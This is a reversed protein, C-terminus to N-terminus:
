KETKILEVKGSDYLPCNPGPLMQLYQNLGKRCTDGVILDRHIYNECLDSCHRKTVEKAVIM